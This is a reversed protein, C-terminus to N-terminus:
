SVVVIAAAVAGCLACAGAIGALLKQPLSARSALGQAAKGSELGKDLLRQAWAFEFSLMILGIPIVLVAPGPFVVMALGAAVIIVAATVWAARFIRGRQPYREREREIRAHMRELRGAM